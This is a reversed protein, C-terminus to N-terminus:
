GILYGYFHSHAGYYRSTSGNRVAVNVYDNVALEMIMSTTTTCDATTPATIYAHPIVDVGNYFEVGNKKIMVRSTAGSTQLQHYLHVCFMYFGAVPATFRYTSTNYHSGRNGFSYNFELVTNSSLAGSDGAAKSMIFAPQYPLTMRGETDIKMVQRVTNNTNALNIYLQGTAGSGGSTAQISGVQGLGTFFNIAGAPDDGGTSDVQLTVNAGRSGGTSTSRIKLEPTGTTTVTISGNTGLTSSVNATGTIVTNGLATNAGVLQSVSRARSM